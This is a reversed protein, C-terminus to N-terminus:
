RTFLATYQQRNNDVNAEGPVRQVQVTITVADGVPPARGLAISATAETGAKTQDVTRRVRIPNGSGSITVLVVVEQEDHEGQNEFTVDFSLNSAAPIRNVTEGPQLRVDGVSVSSLGHGHRGPLPESRAGTGGGARPSGLRGAVQNVDLWGFNTLFRSGAIRQGTIGAEDFAASIYPQVRQSFVVDSALFAQMQGAITRVAREATTANDRGQVLASPIAAGIKRVGEARFNMVMELDDQARQVEDPPDLRKARNVQEEATLRLQNVAVTLDGGQNPADGLLNFLPEGVQRDSDTALAAVDRNYDKLASERRSSQCSRVAFILVLLLLLAVGAAVLRRNRLTADDAARVGGGGGGGGGARTSGGQPRGRGGGGSSRGSSSVRTARTPPDDDDFFSM